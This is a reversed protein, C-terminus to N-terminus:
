GVSQVLQYCEDQYHELVRVVQEDLQGQSVMRRIIPKIESLTLSDRYPRKQVLAQFVDAVSMIRAGLDIEDAKLHFPYGTGSPTEHHFGAWQAIKTDPFVRKLLHVTDYSHRLIYAREQASLEGNKTLISDPVRLKGLDHLMGALEILQQEEESFGMKEALFRALVGVFKSHEKTHSSKADIIKSFLMVISLLMEFDAYRRTSLTAYEQLSTNIYYADMSLWFSEKQSIEVFAEILMPSFYDAGLTQIKKVINDKELLIDGDNYTFNIFNAQLFDVRDALFILNAALKDDDSLLQNQALRAWHEHHHLIWHAYKAFPACDALYNAGRVCHERVDTWELESVLRSHEKTSSVGCDHLMGAYFVDLELQAEWGLVKSVGAAILAVRKGHHVETVGVLDLSCSLSCIVDHLVLEIM